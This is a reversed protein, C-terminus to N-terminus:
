GSEAPAASAGVATIHWGGGTRELVVRPPTTGAPPPDYEATARRGHLLVLIRNADGFERLVQPRDDPDVRATFEAASAGVGRVCGGPGGGQRDARRRLSPAYAACATAGDGNARAEVYSAVRQRIERRETFATSEPVAACGLATVAWLACALASARAGRVPALTAGARQAARAAILPRGAACGAARRARQDEV